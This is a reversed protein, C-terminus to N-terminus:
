CYAANVENHSTNSGCVDRHLIMIDRCDEQAENENGAHNRSSRLGELIRMLVEQALLNEQKM